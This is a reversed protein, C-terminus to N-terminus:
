PQTEPKTDKSKEKREIIKERPYKGSTSSLDPTEKKIGPDIIIIKYDVDPDPMNSLIKYDIIPDPKIIIMSYRTQSGSFSYIQPDKPLTGTIGNAKDEFPPDGQVAINLEESDECGMLFGSLSMLLIYLSQRTRLM